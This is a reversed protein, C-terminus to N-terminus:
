KRGLYPTLDKQVRLFVPPSLNLLLSLCPALVFLLATLTPSCSRQQGGTRSFRSRETQQWLSRKGPLSVSLAESLRM